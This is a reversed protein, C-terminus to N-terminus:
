KRYAEAGWVFPSLVKERLQWSDAYRVHNIWGQVSADFDAFSIKGARWTEYREALRRSSHRIKRSKVRRFDPHIIFGLWPIGHVVPIVQASQKHVTLRLTELYEILATKWSWLEAKSNSFLVFDDVYRLYARCGLTRKVFM